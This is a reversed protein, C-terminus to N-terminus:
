SARRISWFFARGTASILQLTMDWGIGLFLNPLVIPETQVGLIRLQMIVRKTGASQAKEYVKLLYEDGKVMSAVGDLVLTYYGIDTLTQLTTSGDTVALTTETATVTINNGTTYTVTLAM